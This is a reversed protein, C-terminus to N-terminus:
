LIIIKRSLLSFVIYKARIYVKIQKMFSYIRVVQLCGVMNSVENEHKMASYFRVQLGILVCTSDLNNIYLAIFVCKYVLWLASVIWIILIFHQLFM